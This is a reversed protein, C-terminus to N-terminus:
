ASRIRSRGGDSSEFPIEISAVQGPGDGTKFNVEFMVRDEHDLPSDVVLVASRLELLGRASDGVTAKM